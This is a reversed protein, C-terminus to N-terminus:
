LCSGELATLQPKSSWLRVPGYRQLDGRFLRISASQCSRSHDAQTIEGFAQPPATFKMLMLMRLQRQRSQAANSLELCSLFQLTQHLTRVADQGM